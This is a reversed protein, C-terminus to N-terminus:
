LSMLLCCRYLHTRESLFVGQLKSAMISGLLSLYGRKSEGHTLADDTGSAPQALLQSIHTTLPTILEDLVQFMAEQFAAFTIIHDEGFESVRVKLRHVLLGIFNMFDVLESPESHALLNVM